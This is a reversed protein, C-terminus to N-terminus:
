PGATTTTSTRPSAASSRRETAFDATTPSPRAGSGTRPPEPRDARDRVAPALVASRSVGIACLVGSANVALLSNPLTRPMLTETELINRNFAYNTEDLHNEIYSVVLSAGPMPAATLKAEFRREDRGYVYPVPTPDVNGAQQQPQTAFSQGTDAFRGAGFAWLRDKWLPFGLTAEYAENLIHARNDVGHGEDYANNATWQDSSLTARFSGSLRNGGSRTVVNVVGGMFRGYEASIRGTQVTTEQIADEIFLDQPQGRLNENVVVGNVLFLNEYSVAGSIMIAPRPSASGLSSSPGNENVGPALLAADRLARGSPLKNLLKQPITRGSRPAM